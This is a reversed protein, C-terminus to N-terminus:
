AESAAANPAPLARIREVIATTSVGPVLDLYVVQGGAQRVAAAEPLPADRWDAGKVWVDPQLRQVVELPTDADFAVVLDVDRLARLLELRDELPLIPRGAGKLRRVSEDSNIAVVLCDGFERARRLSEVHGPHLLDFCGNTLVIREGAARRERVTAAVAELGAADSM